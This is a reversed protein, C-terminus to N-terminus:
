VYRVGLYKEVKKMLERWIESYEGDEGYRGSFLGSTEGPEFVVHDNNHAAISASGHYRYFTSSGGNKNLQKVFRKEGEPPVAADVVYYHEGGDILAWSHLVNPEYASVYGITHAVRRGLRDGIQTAMMSAHECRPFYYNERIFWGLESLSRGSNKFRRAAEDICYPPITYSDKIEQFRRFVSDPLRPNEKIKVKYHITFDNPYDLDYTAYVNGFEDTEERGRPSCYELSGFYRNMLPVKVELEDISGRIRYSFSINKEVKVM